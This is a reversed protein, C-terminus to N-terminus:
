AIRFVSLTSAKTDGGNAAAIVPTTSTTTDKVSIKINAAPSTIFGSLSITIWGSPGASMVSTAIITTGDWLKASVVDSPTCLATVTGTAYWTGTTGQAVTPGDFYTGATTLTVNGGLSNTLQGIGTVGTIPLGTCNTLTGSTPTGLLPTVFTPSTSLVVSGSGITASVTTGNIKLINGTGATDFTKNTFTDTTARGVYTDTGQFTLTTSDTGALTLINNVTLSKNNVITLTAASAPTTITVKNITTATAAGLAPTTLTPSTLTKNTLTDTTARGVYTDTGQFTITTSDSGALILSNNCTLSKGDAVALTSSTAPATILMKNISTATAVGLVPTTLTPTTALVVTGSGITGNSLDSAALQAVTIAAGTTVQKLVRSTGGTASLDANTGGASLGVQGNITPNGAVGDSNSWSLGSISTSMARTVWTNAASRVILGTSSLASIATLDADYAQIDAGIGLGLATRATATTNGGTGGRAIALTGTWGLTLSTANLLATTPGGALTLTVNTDDTKTLAAGVLPHGGNAVTLLDTLRVPDNDDTPAPLNLIRNSNMDLSSGMQNPASGDRSLTNDFADELTEYNANLATLASSQFNSLATLTLKSM